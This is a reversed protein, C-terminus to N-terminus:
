IANLIDLQLPKQDKDVAKKSEELQQALSNFESHFPDQPLFHLTQAMQSETESRAGAYPMALALSISYPSLILNGNQSRLSRYLDFAFANNGNVLDRVDRELVSPGTERSHESIVTNVSSFLSCATFIATTCAIFVLRKSTNKM